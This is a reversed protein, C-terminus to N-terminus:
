ADPKTYDSGIYQMSLESLTGEEALEQLAQNVADLLRTEGKRLPIAFEELGTPIQFAVKLDADPHEQLYDQLIVANFSIFDVRGSLLLDAAEGSSDIGVITAGQEEFWPATANTVNTAIKKGNLDEPGHIDENDGRVVIQKYLYFYSDSFDYKERREDTVSVANIVTDLRGSDIGALLSDWAAEVFEVEVGLKEGLAKAIDVDLGTLDNTDPDHYTFPPYTGEVGVVLKGAQQIAALEDETEEAAATEEATEEAAATEEAGDAETSEPTNEDQEAQATDEPSEDASNSSCGTFVGALLLLCLFVLLSRKGITKM